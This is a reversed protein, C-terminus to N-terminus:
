ANGKCMQLIGTIKKFVLIVAKHLMRKEKTCLLKDLQISLTVFHCFGVSAETQCIKCM